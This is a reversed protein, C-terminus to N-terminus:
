AKYNLRNRSQAISSVRAVLDFGRRISARDFWYLFNFRVLVMCAHEQRLPRELGAVPSRSDYLQVTFLKYNCDDTHVDGRSWRRHTNRSTQCGGSDPREWGVMM